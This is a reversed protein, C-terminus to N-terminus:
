KCIKREFLWEALEPKNLNSTAPKTDETLNRHYTACDLVIVSHPPISVFVKKEMWDKFVEWNMDTHYDSDKLAKKGRYILRAGDVFGDESGIHCIISREGQGKQLAAPGERNEDMWSKIPTM